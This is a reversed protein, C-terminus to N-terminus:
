RLEERHISFRNSLRIDPASRRRLIKELSAKPGVIISGITLLAEWLVRTASFGVGAERLKTKHFSWFTEDRRLLLSKGLYGYYRVLHERICQQLEESTLYDPGYTKLHYLTGAHHTQLDTAVATLSEQRLRTYSLVQHVFGFDCHRLLAFCTETDAHLNNEAFFPDRGRVLDSRYLLTNASGFLHLHDLFHRRCIERGPVCSSPYPLGACRVETGELMYSSVIGVSPNEEAVAVMKELCEPFIWDDAFVVKCYKSQPSIQRLAENHNPFARLFQQNDVVRIRPDREAYRLALERSGDTSCNNVITYDWNQYTQALVSEICESLYGVENYLPTVISVLPAAANSM